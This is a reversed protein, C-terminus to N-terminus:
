AIAGHPLRLLDESLAWLKEAVVEDTAWPRVGNMGAYDAPVAQAIDCDECYVGGMGELLPSTSCWISTAAGQELTKFGPPVILKGDAGRVIGWSAMDAESMNRGLETMIAGPHVSFARIGYKQGLKDLQLAFLAVASKSQGYALNKEFVRTKFHLDSFDVGGAMHGISSLAVVRAHASKELTPWLGVALQFHGLYNTAFQTEYGRSDHVNKPAFVGANNILIDIARNSQLFQAVFQDISAPNELDLQIVEVNRLGALNQTAKQIDRAGVVVFTGASVLAKTTELGIGSYGGTVIATKGRLDRGKIVEMATSTSGFGSNLPKQETKMKVERKQSYLPFPPTFHPV